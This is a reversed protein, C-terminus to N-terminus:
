LNSDQRRLWDPRALEFPENQRKDLGYKRPEFKPSVEKSRQLGLIYTDMWDTNIISLKEENWILNSSLRSLVGRKEKVTGNEIIDYLEVGLDLVEEMKTLWSEAKNTDETLLREELDKRDEQFEEDTIYGNRHQHRLKKLQENIKENNSEQAKLVARKEDIEKDHLENIHKKAWECLKPSISINEDIYAKLYNDVEKEQITRASVGKTRKKLTNYYYNYILYKPKKTQAVL